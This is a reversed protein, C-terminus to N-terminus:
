FAVALGPEATAAVVADADARAVLGARALLELGVLTAARGSGDLMKLAVADGATTALILVGEAGTKALVGTMEMTVANPRGPGDVAWPDGLMAAPLLSDSAALRSFARALGVLSLVPTPANCGDVGWHSIPEGSFEELTAAVAEQMPHAPDLYDDTSWGAHVCAGLFGAHKGSCNMAIARRGTEAIVAAHRSAADLPWDAPCRLASEDLGVDALMREVVAVHRPTGWHSATALALQEGRLANGSRLMAEAQFPKAASRPYILATPDGVAERVEGAANVLVAIGLHRSEIMGSRSLTALDVTQSTEIM